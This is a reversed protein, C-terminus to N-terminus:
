TVTCRLNPLTTFWSSAVWFNINNVAENTPNLQINSHINKIYQLISDPNIITSDYIILIDDVYWTYFSLARTYILHKIITKELRKLFKETMTDSIQSGM